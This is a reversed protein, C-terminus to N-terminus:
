NSTWTVVQVINNKDIYGVNALSTSGKYMRGLFSSFESERLSEVHGDIIGANSIGGHRFHPLVAAAAGAAYGRLYHVYNQNGGTATKSLNDQLYIFYSPYKLKSINVGQFSDGASDTLNVTGSINGVGSNNNVAITGYTYLQWNNNGADSFPSAIPCVKSNNRGLYGLKYVWFGWTVHTSAGYTGKEHKCSLFWDNYDDSYLSNILVCSKLNNICQVNKAKERAKNLAPLLMSALIAIIAIVVLLEILTFLGLKTKSKKCM